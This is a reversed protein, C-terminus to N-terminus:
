EALELERENLFRMGNITPRWIRGYVNTAIRTTLFGMSAAMAIESAKERAFNSSTAFGDEYARSVVDVLLEDISAM